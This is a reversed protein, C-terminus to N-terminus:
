LAKSVNYGYIIEAIKRHAYDERKLRLIMEKTEPIKEKSHRVM